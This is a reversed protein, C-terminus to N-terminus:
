IGHTVDERPAFESCVAAPLNRRACSVPRNLSNDTVDVRPPYIQNDPM